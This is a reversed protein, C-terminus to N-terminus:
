VLTVFWFVVLILFNYIGMHFRSLAHYRMDRLFHIYCRHLISTDFRM